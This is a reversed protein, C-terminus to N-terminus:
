RAKYHQRIQGDLRVRQVRGCVPCWAKGDPRTIPVLASSGPCTTGDPFKRHRYRVLEVYADKDDLGALDPEDPPSPYTAYHRYTM